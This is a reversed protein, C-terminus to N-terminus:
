ARASRLTQEQRRATPWPDERGTGSCGRWFLGELVGGFATELEPNGVMKRRIDRILRGLWTRMKRIWRLGQKHGGTQLLRAGVKRWASTAL